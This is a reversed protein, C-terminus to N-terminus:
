ASGDGGTAGGMIKYVEFWAVGAVGALVAVGWDVPTMAALDFADRVTPVSLVAVLTAAAGGLVWVLTPNRRRRLTQWVSLRWSRNVLILGLNGVVVTAFTVSRVAEDPRDGLVAWLYVALIAALVSLGQLVAVTLM